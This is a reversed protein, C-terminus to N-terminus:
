TLAILTGIIIGLSILKKYDKKKNNLYSGAYAVTDDIGTAFFAAFGLASLILIETSGM